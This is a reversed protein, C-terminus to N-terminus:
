GELQLTPDGYLLFAAWTIQSPYKQRIHLRAQRMAEGIMHGELVKGYFAVAFDAAADDYVPWLAGLCGLAGGYIFASALGEAPRQLSRGVAQPKEENATRGSECANLFV